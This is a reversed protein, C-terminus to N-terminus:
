SIKKKEVEVIELQTTIQNYYHPLPEVEYLIEKGQAYLIMGGESEKNKVLTNKLDKYFIRTKNKESKLKRNAMEYFTSATNPFLTRKLLGEKKHEEEVVKLLHNYYNKSLSVVQDYLELFTNRFTAALNQLEKIAARVHRGKFWGSIGKGTFVGILTGILTTAAPIIIASTGGTVPALALGAYLGAQGGAWGGAGVGVTDIVTHESATKLDVKGDYVRKGHRATNIALTIIPIGDILDGMNDVGEFTDATAHFAKQSSLDPDIIVRPHNGFADVMEKNTIVDVDPHKDLHQQIYSPNDTVKVNFAKGDITVDLGETTASEPVNINFDQESLNGFATQEGTYGKYKHVMQRWAAEGAESRIIEDKLFGMLDGLNDFNQTHHLHNIGSLAEPSLKLSNYLVDFTSVGTVVTGDIGFEKAARKKYSENVNLAKNLFAYQRYRHILSASGLGVVFVGFVILTIIM